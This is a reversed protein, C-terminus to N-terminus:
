LGSRSQVYIVPVYMAVQPSLLNLLPLCARLCAGKIGLHTLGEEKATM